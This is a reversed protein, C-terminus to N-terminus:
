RRRRNNSMMIKAAVNYFCTSLVQLYLMHFGRIRRPTRPDDTYDLLAMKLRLIDNNCLVDAVMALTQVGATYTVSKRSVGKLFLKAKELEEVVVDINTNEMTPLICFLDVPIYVPSVPLDTSSTPSFNHHYLVGIRVSIYRSM